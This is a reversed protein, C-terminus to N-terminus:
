NLKEVIREAWRIVPQESMHKATDFIYEDESNFSDKSWHGNNDVM